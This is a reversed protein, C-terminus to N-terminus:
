QDAATMPERSDVEFLVMKVHMCQLRDTFFVQEAAASAIFPFKVQYLGAGQLFTYVWAKLQNCLSGNTCHANEKSKGIKGIIKRSPFLGLSTKQITIHVHM